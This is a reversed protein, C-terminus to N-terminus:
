MVNLFVSGRGGRENLFHDQSIGIEKKTSGQIQANPIGQIVLVGSLNQFPVQFYGISCKLVEVRGSGGQQGVKKKCYRVRVRGIDFFCVRQARLIDELFNSHTTVNLTEQSFFVCVQIDIQMEELKCSTLKSLPILQLLCLVKAEILKM